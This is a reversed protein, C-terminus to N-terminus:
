VLNTMTTAFPPVHTYIWKHVDAMKGGIGNALERNATLFDRKVASGNLTMWVLALLDLKGVDGSSVAEAASGVVGLALVGTLASRTFFTVLFREQKATLGDLVTANGQVPMVFSTSLGTFALHKVWDKPDTLDILGNQYLYLRVLGNVILAPAVSYQDALKTCWSNLDPHHKFFQGLGALLFPLQAGTFLGIKGGKILENVAALTTLIGNGAMLHTSGQRFKGERYAESGRNVQNIALSGLVATTATDPHEGVVETVSAVVEELGM